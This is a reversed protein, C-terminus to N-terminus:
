FVVNNRKKISTKFKSSSMISSYLKHFFTNISINFSYPVHNTIIRGKKILNSTPDKTTLQALLAISNRRILLFSFPGYQNYMPLGQGQMPKEYTHLNRAIWDHLIQPVVQAQDHSAIAFSTWCTLKGIIRSSSSCHQPIHCMCAKLM